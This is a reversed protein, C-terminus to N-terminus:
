ARELGTHSECRYGGPLLLCYSHWDLLEVSGTSSDEDDIVVKRNANEQLGHELPHLEVDLEGFVARVAQLLEGAVARDVHDQEVQHHRADVSVLEDLADALLIGVRARVDDDEGGGAAAADVLDGGRGNAVRDELGEIEVAEDLDEAVTQVPPM